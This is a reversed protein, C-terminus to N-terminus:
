GHQGGKELFHGIAWLGHKVLWWALRAPAFYGPVTEKGAHWMASLLSDEPSVYVPNLRQWEQKLESKFM